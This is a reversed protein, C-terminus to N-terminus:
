EPSTTGRLRQLRIGLHLLLRDEGRHLSLGTLTEARELRRYVTARHLSLAGAVAPVDGAADLFAEVVAVLEPQEALVLVAPPVAPLAGARLLEALPAWAGLSGWTRAPGLEPAAGLLECAARAEAFSEGLRALGARAAGVGVAGAGAEAFGAAIAEPDEDARVAAVLMGGDVLWVVAGSARRRRVREAVAALDTAAGSGRAEGGPEAAPSSGGASAGVGRAVVAVVPTTARWGVREELVAAAERRARESPDRLVAALLRAVESREEDELLASRALLVGAADAAAGLREPVGDALPEGEMLLWLFGFLRGDRRVPAVLRESFGLAANEPVVTPGEARDIRLEELWAAVAPPAHRTLISALRVADAQGELASYAILRLRRDELAVPHGLGEAIEDVLDQLAAAVSV